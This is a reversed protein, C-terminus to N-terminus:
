MSVWMSSVWYNRRCISKVKLSTYQIFTQIENIATIDWSLLLDTKNGKKHIPVIDSEKQQDPLEEKNWISNVLKHVESQLTEGGAQILQALIQKSGPSKYKKLKAMAM